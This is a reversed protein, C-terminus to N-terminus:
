RNLKRGKASPTKMYNEYTMCGLVNMVNPSNNISYIFDYQRKHIVLCYDGKYIFSDGIGLRCRKKYISEM